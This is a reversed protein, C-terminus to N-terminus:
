PRVWWTGPRIAGAQRIGDASKDEAETRFHAPGVEKRELISSRSM